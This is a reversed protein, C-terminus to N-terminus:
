QISNYYQEGNPNKIEGSKIATYIALLSESVSNTPKFGLTKEIKDFSVQYTRKDQVSTNESKKFLVKTKPLIEKVMNGVQSITYNQDNSGVNFILNKQKSLPQELVNVYATAADAVHLLPRWQNGGFIIIKGETAAMKAFTNVVLDFRMRPSPGYLTSMRMIVPRFNDDALSLIGKESEIKTRAYLSVPNLQANEDLKDTGIGYVSCTSAFIFKNIQYYKCALALTMSALYNVGITDQPFKKSAPDGVIAALHIVADTGYLCKHIMQIDRVDGKVLEFYPNKLLESVSKKGFLLSDLVRVKYGKNLLLRALVSGLYGAGGVILVRNIGSDNSTISSGFTISLSKSNQHFTIIDTVRKKKDVVPIRITSIEEKLETEKKRLDNLILDTAQKPDTGEEVVLPDYNMYVELTSNIDHGTDLARRIDGPTMVGELVRHKNVIFVVGWGNTDIRKMATKATVNKSIFVSEPLSM